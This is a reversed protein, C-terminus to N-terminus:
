YFRLCSPMERPSVDGGGDTYLAARHGQLFEEMLCSRLDKTELGITLILTETYKLLTVVSLSHM